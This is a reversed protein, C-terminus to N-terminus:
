AGVRKELGIVVAKGMEKALRFWDGRGARKQCLDLCSCSHKVRVSVARIGVHQAIAGGLVEDLEEILKFTKDCHEPDWAHHGPEIMELSLDTISPASHLIPGLLM